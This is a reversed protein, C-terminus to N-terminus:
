HGFRFLSVASGVTEDALSALNLADNITALPCNRDLPVLKVSVVVLRVSSSLLAAIAAGKLQAAQAFM